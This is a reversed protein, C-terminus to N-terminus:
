VRCFYIFLLIVYFITLCNLMQNLNIVLHRVCMGRLVEVAFNYILIEFLKVELGFYHVLLEYCFYKSM